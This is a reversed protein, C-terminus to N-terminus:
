RSITYERRNVLSNFMFGGYRCIVIKWPDVNKDISIEIRSGTDVESCIVKTTGDPLYKFTNCRYVDVGGNSSDEIHMYVHRDDEVYEFVYCKGVSYSTDRGNEYTCVVDCSVYKQSFGLCPLLIAFVLLIRKM